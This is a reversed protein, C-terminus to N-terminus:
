AILVGTKAERFSSEHAWFRRPRSSQQQQVRHRRASLPRSSRGWLGFFCALLAARVARSLNYAMLHLRWELNVGALGRRRFRNLGQRERLHSFVPEVLAKRQASIRRARPQKMVTRLAEKWEQGQTRRITRYRGTTCEAKRPCATCASTRYQVYARRGTRPNAACRRSPKLHQGEPCTYHDQEADYTFAHAPILRQHHHRAPAAREPCLLSLGKELSREILEYTNFGADLLLESGEAIGDLLRMMAAQESTPALAADVVVRADNALVVAEYGLRRGRRNKLRLVCADPELPSLAKRRPHEALKQNLVRYTSQQRTATAGGSTETAGAEIAERSLLSFRSTVAELVTGDGALRARGSATRKLVQETLSAFFQHQLLSSHRQIFRGLISYDPAIGGSVWMCGLDTRAFRALERLSSIGRMLGYLIIGAMLRPAYPPRGGGSYAAEFASWDMQDLLQRVKLPETVGMQKLHEALTAAGIRLEGPDPDVFRVAQPSTSSPAARDPIPADFLPMQRDRNVKAVPRKIDSM